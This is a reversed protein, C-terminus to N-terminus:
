FKIGADRVGDALAKVRGRYQYGNRDFVAKEIKLGKCKEGLAMGVAKAALASKKSTAESAM